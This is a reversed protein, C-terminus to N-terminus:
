WQQSLRSPSLLKPAAKSTHQKREGCLESPVEARPVLSEDGSIVVAAGGACDWDPDLASRHRHRWVPTPEHTPPETPARPLAMGQGGRKEPPWVSSHLACAFPILVLRKTASDFPLIEKAKQCIRWM